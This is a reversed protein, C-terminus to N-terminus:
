VATNIGRRSSSSYVFKDICRPKSVNPSSVHSYRLNNGNEAKGIERPFSVTFHREGEM